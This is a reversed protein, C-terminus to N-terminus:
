ALINGIKIQAAQIAAINLPVTSPAGPAACTVTITKVAEILEDLASKLSIGGREIKVGGAAVEVKTGSKSLFVGDTDVSWDTDMGVAVAVSDVESWMAVYHDTNGLPAVLVSSGVKPLMIIGRDDGDLAARLRVDFVELSDPGEVDCTLATSNVAKVHAPFAGAQTRDKVFRHLAEQLQRTSDM